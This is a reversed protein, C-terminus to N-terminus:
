KGAASGQLLELCKVVPFNYLQMLELDHLQRIEHLCITLHLLYTNGHEMAHQLIGWTDRLIDQSEIILLSSCPLM